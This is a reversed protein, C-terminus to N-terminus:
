IDVPDLLMHCLTIATSYIKTIRGGDRIDQHIDHDLKKALALVGVSYGYDRTKPQQDALGNPARPIGLERRAKM